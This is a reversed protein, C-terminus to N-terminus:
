QLVHTLPSPPKATFTHPDTVPHNERLLQAAAEPALPRALFFGQISDCSTAKLQDLQEQTEVGEAVTRLGLQQALTVIASVTSANKSTGDLRSIFSRDIKLTDLPLSHLYAFSSQGVGFDDICITVGLNRLARLREAASQPDAVFWTETIELGLRAPPLGTEALTSAVLPVFDERNLQVASINVYLRAPPLGQKEWDIMQKCATRLVWAGIPLILGTEEAVPIFDAPPVNGREPDQWRLLAEFGEIQQSGNYIPQYVLHFRNGTLAEHLAAQMLSSQQVEQGLAPNYLRVQGRGGRKAAYLATDAHQLLIQPTRGHTPYLSIGVSASASFQRGDVTFPTGIAHLMRKTVTHAEEPSSLFPLVLIFEDGGQRALTDVDRCQARLIATIQKLYRDGVDHGLSDNIQKFRDLDIYCVAIQANAQRAALIAQELRDELLIRNPLATLADHQADHALQRQLRTHELALRALETADAVISALEQQDRPTIKGFLSLAGLTEGDLSLLPVSWEQLAVTVGADDPSSFSREALMATRQLVVRGCLQTKAELPVTDIAARLKEPLNSHGILRLASAERVLFAVSFAPRFSNIAEALLSLTRPLGDMAVISAFIQTKRVQWERVLVQLTIDRFVVVAGRNQGDVLIPNSTYAVPFCTGDKRWFVEDERHHSVSDQLAEYIPCLHRDYPSGDRHSHHVLSHQTRGQMDEASWGTIQEAVSNAFTVMGEADLGYIGDGASELILRSMELMELQQVNVVQSAQETPQTLQIQPSHEQGQEALGHSTQLASVPSVLLEASTAETTLARQKPLANCM